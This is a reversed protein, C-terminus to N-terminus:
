ALGKDVIEVIKIQFKQDFWEPHKTYMEEGCGPKWNNNREYLFPNASRKCAGKSKFILAANLDDTWNTKCMGSQAWYKGDSKRVLVFRM